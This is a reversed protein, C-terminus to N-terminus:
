DRSDCISDLVMQGRCFFPRPCTPIRCRGFVNLGLFSVAIEIDIVEVRDQLSKLLALHATELKSRKQSAKGEPPAVEKVKDLIAM